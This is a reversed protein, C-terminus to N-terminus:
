TKLPSNNGITNFTVEKVYQTFDQDEDLIFLFHGGTLVTYSVYLGLIEHFVLTKLSYYGSCLSNSLLLESLMPYEIAFFGRTGLWSVILVNIWQGKKSYKM